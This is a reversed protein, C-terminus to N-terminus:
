CKPTGGVFFRENQEESENQKASENLKKSQNESENENESQKTATLSNVVLGREATATPKGNSDKVRPSEISFQFHFFNLPSLPNSM